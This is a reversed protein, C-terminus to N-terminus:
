IEPHFFLLTSRLHDQGARSVCGKELDEEVVVGGGEDAGDLGEDGGDAGRPGGRGGEVEGGDLALDDGDAGGDVIDDGAGLLRDAGDLIVAVGRREVFVGPGDEAHQLLTPHSQQIRALIPLAHLPPHRTQRKLNRPSRLYTM